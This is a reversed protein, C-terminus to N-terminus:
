FILWAFVYLTNNDSANRGFGDYNSTGGNFQTYLTYQIGLKLNMWPSAWSDAKGFPVWDAELIFANSNPKGNASGSVPESPFLLPNASGWTRQWAATLGYTQQYYYTVTARAQNLSNGAQSAAGSNFSGILNQTEHDVIGLLSVVHTGDGLYQYGGDIAYDTYSDRGMSGTSSFPAYAPNINSHLFIGGVHASQGNWNWEYAARLYPAPNATSGPGYSNGSWSLLSPGYTNYLGAELYLSRDYWAYVTAGVSNGILGNALLPQATPVPVLASAVFPYGWAYSSNYPDQVTPGNNIDLGLRLETDHVTIPATLRLDSNDLHFSSAIGDFTVQIMAGAYDNIRGGLFASIQDMAFNGNAGYNNAAPAGQGQNTNSYSGLLMLSLPIPTTADGGTQTYGSIKFARGFATLQPGFAGIHCATCPQGTQQAFPPIARALAPAFIVLVTALIGRITRILDQKSM